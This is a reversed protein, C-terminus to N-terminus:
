PPAIEAGRLHKISIQNANKVTSVDVPKPTDQQKVIM